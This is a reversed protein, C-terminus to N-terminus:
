LLLSNSVTTERETYCLMQGPSVVAGRTPKFRLTLENKRLTFTLTTCHSTYKAYNNYIQVLM